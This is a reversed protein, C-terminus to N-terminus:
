WSRVWTFSSISRTGGAPQQTTVTTRFAQVDNPDTTPTTGDALYGEFSLSHIDDALPQPSGGDVSLTVSTGSHDWALTSGDDRIVTLSGSTNSPASIAAVGIAQRTQQLLHRLVATANAARDLDAEVSQWALYSSHMVAFSSAMLTASLTLATM